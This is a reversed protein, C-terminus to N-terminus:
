RLQLVTQKIELDRPIGRMNCQLSQLETLSWMECVAFGNGPFKVKVRECRTGLQGTTLDTKRIERKQMGLNEDM